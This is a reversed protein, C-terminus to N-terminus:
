ELTLIYSPYELGGCLRFHLMCFFECTYLAVNQPWNGAALLSSSRLHPETDHHLSCQAVAVTWHPSRLWDPHHPHAWVTQLSPLPFPLPPIPSLLFSSPSPPFSSYSLFFLLSISFPFARGKVFNLIPLTNLNHSLTFKWQRCFHLKNPLAQALGVVLM